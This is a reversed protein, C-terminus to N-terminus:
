LAVDGVLVAQLVAGAVVCCIAIICVQWLAVGSTAMAAPNGQADGATAAAEAVGKRQRVGDRAALMGAEAQQQKRMSALTEELEAVRELAAAAEQRAAIRAADVDSSRAGASHPEPTRPDGRGHESLRDRQYTPEDYGRALEAADRRPTGPRSGEADGVEERRGEGEQEEELMSDSPSIDDYRDRPTDSRESSADLGTRDGYGRARDLDDYLGRPEDDTPL